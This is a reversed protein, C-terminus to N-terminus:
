EAPRERRVRPSKAPFPVAEVAQGVIAEGSDFALDAATVAQEAAADAAALGQDAVKEAAESSQDLMAEGAAAAQEVAEETAQATQAQMERAAEFGTEVATEVPQAYAQDVAATLEAPPGLPFSPDVPAFSREEVHIWRSMWWYAVGAGATALFAPWLPSTFGVGLKLARGPDTNFEPAEMPTLMM